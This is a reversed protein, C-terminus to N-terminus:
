YQSGVVLRDLARARMDRRLLPRSLLLPHLLALAMVGIVVVTVMGVVGAGDLAAKM